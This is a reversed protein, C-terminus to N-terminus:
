KRVQQKEDWWTVSEGAAALRCQSSVDRVKRSVSELPDSKNL